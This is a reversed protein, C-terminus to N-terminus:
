PSLIPSKWFAEAETLMKSVEREIHEYTLNAAVKTGHMAVIGAKNLGAKAYSKLVDTFLREIERGNEQHFRAITCHDPVQNAAPIELDM